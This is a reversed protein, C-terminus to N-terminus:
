AQVEVKNIFQPPVSVVQETGDLKVMRRTGPSGDSEEVGFSAIFTGFATVGEITISVRQGRHFGTEYTISEM